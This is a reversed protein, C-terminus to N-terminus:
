MDHPKEDADAPSFIIPYVVVVIGGVPPPFRLTRFVGLVCTTVSPDPFLAGVQVPMGAAAPAPPTAEETASSVHGERAIVFRTTLRGELKANHALGSEYCRQMEAFSARVVKQVVEPPLRGIAGGGGPEKAGADVSTAEARSPEVPGASTSAQSVPAEPPM